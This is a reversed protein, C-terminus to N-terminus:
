KSLGKSNNFNYINYNMTKNTHGTYFISLPLFLLPKSIFSFQTFTTPFSSYFLHSFDPNIFLQFFMNKPNRVISMIKGVCKYLLAVHQGCVIRLGILLDVVSVYWLCVSFRM